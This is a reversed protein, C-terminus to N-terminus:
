KVETQTVDALDSEALLSAEVILDVDAPLDVQFNGDAVGKHFEVNNFEIVTTQGLDDQISMAEIASDRFSLTLTSFLNLAEKPELRFRQEGLQTVVYHPLVDNAPRGLLAAPSNGLAGELPKQTAQELDVDWITIWQGNSIIRQPFPTITDWVFRNPEALLFVGENAQLQKGDEDYTVQRFEGEINRNSELLKTLLDTAALSNFSIFLSLFIGVIKMM